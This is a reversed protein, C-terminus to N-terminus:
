GTFFFLFLVSKSMEWDSKQKGIMGQPQVNTQVTEVNIGWISLNQTGGFNTATSEISEQGVGVSKECCKNCARCQNGMDVLAKRLRRRLQNSV